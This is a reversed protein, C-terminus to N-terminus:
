KWPPAPIDIPPRLGRQAYIAEFLFKMSAITLAQLDEVGEFTREGYKGPPNPHPDRRLDTHGDYYAVGGREIPKSPDYFESEQTKPAHYRGLEDHFSLLTETDTWHWRIEQAPDFLAPPRAVHHDWQEDVLIPLASPAFVASTKLLMGKFDGMGQANYGGEDSFGATTWMAPIRFRRGWEPRTYNFANQTKEPDNIREFEPCRYLNVFRAYPYVSGSEPVRVDQPWNEQRCRFFDAKRQAEQDIPWLRPPLTVVWNENPDFLMGINRSTDPFDVGPTCGMFPPTENFDEAYMLVAKCLQGVRSLCLVTRAQARAKSLSPLLISILLAIIAVVVLLEILTFGKPGGGVRRATHQNENESPAFGPNV